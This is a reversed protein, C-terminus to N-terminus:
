TTNPVREGVDGFLFFVNIKEITAESTSQRNRANGERFFLAPYGARRHTLEIEDSVNTNKQVAICQQAGTRRRKTKVLLIIRRRSRATHSRRDAIPSAFVTTTV